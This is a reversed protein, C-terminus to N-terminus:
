GGPEVDFGVINRVLYDGTDSGTVPLAAFILGGVRRLESALKEGIEEKFVDLAPRGDLQIIINAQCDTIEHGPGIPM